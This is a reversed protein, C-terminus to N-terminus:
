AVRQVTMWSGAKVKTDSADSTGQTFQLKITGAVTAVLVGKFYVPTATHAATNAFPTESETTWSTPLLLGLGPTSGDGGALAGPYAIIDSTGVTGTVTATGDWKFSIDAAAATIYMVLADLVYTGAIPLTVTLGSDLLTTTANRAASDATLHSFVPKYTNLTTIESHADAADAIHADLLDDIEVLSAQVDVATGTLSTSDVLIASAAHANLTDATHADLEAQTALDITSGEVITELRNDAGTTVPGANPADSGDGLGVIAQDTGHAM